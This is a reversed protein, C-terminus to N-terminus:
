RGDPSTTSPMRATWPHRRSVDVITLSRLFPGPAPTPPAPVIKASCREIVRELVHGRAQVADLSGILALLRGM